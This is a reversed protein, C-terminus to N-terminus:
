EGDDSGPLSNAVTLLDELARITSGVLLYLDSLRAKLAEVEARFKDAHQQAAATSIMKGLNARQRKERKWAKKLEESQIGLGAHWFLPGGRVVYMETVGDSALVPPHRPEAAEHEGEPLDHPESYAAAQKDLRDLEAEILRCLREGEIRQRQMLAMIERELKHPTSPQAPKWKPAWPPWIAQSHDGGTRFSRGRHPATVVLNPQATSSRCTISAIQIPVSAPSRLTRRVFPNLM